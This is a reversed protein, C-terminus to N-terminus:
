ISGAAALSCTDRWILNIFRQMVLVMAGSNKDNLRSLLTNSYWDIVNRRGTESFAEDPKQPDDM